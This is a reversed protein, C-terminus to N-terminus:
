KNAQKRLYDSTRNPGNHSWGPPNFIYKLKTKFDPSRKVDNWLNIFEHTAIKVPNYTEINNTIGFVPKETESEEEFTEFLRDWIILIGAHNRDLYRINSAHHVRHHSPTNFFWEIPGLKKVIQTHQLFQYILSLSMMFMIMLPEFGILPLWMWFIYKYLLEAWSQRLAVAFNLKQSSHHNVHAAWLIRVQHSLRHHWYFSFDELFFLIVYAWWEHGIEFLRYQYIFSFAFFATTKVVIGIILSGIGMAICALSDKWEYLHLKEKSDIILEVAIVILYVPIAWVTPDNYVDSNIEV